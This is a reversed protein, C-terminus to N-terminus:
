SCSDPMTVKVPPVPRNSPTVPPNAVTVSITPSGMMSGTAPVMVIFKTQVAVPVIVYQAPASVSTAIALQADVGMMQRGNRHCCSSRREATLGRFAALNAEAPSPIGKISTWTGSGDLRAENISVGALKM